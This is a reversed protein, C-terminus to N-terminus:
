GEVSDEETELLPVYRHFAGGGWFHDWEDIALLCGAGVM